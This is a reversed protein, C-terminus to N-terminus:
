ESEDTVEATQPVPESPVGDEPLAERLFESDAALFGDTLRSLGQYFDTQAFKRMAETFMPTWALLHDELFNRQTRVLSAAREDDGEELAKSCRQALVKMFELETSIHDETEHFDKNKEMGESRLIALVEDRADQMLLRKESTHVSEYPYAASFADMGEGIFTRAYDRALDDLCGPYVNSLYRAILQYGQDADESGTSLPYRTGRLVDLIEQNVERRYLRALLSYVAVRQGNLELLEEITATDTEERVQEASM